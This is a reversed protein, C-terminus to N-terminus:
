TVKGGILRGNVWVGYKAGSAIYEVDLIMVSHSRSVELESKLKLSTSSIM